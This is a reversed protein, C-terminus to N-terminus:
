ALVNNIKKFFTRFCVQCEKLVLYEAETFLDSFCTGLLAFKLGKTDSLGLRSPPPHPLKVDGGRRLQKESLLELVTFTAVRSSQLM